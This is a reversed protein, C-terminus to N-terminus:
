SAGRVVSAAEAYLGQLGTLHDDDSVFRGAVAALLQEGGARPADIEDLITRALEAVGGVPFVTGTLGNVMEPLGGQDSVIAPVGHQLSERVTYPSNEAWSSPHVTAVSAGLISRLEDRGYRGRFEIGSTGAALGRLRDEDAGSGYLKLRADPRRQVVLPWAAILTDVGKEISLRGIYTVDIRGTAPSDDGPVADGWALDLYRVRGQVPSGRGELLTAMFRSPAHVLGPARRWVANWVPLEAAAIVSSGLSGKVCRTAVMHGVRQPASAGLCKVCPQKRGDDWMRQNSCVFKYEHATTVMPVGRRAAVAVVSPTLQYCTSQFHVLDPEFQDIAEEMAAAAARSYVSAAASRVKTALSGYYDRNPSLFVPGGLGAMLPENAPPAMGFFGVDMGRRPLHHALWEIYTEVGGVHHLFKSAVLVKM